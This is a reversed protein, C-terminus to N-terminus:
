IEKWFYFCWEILSKQGALWSFCHYIVDILLSVFHSKALCLKCMKTLSPMNITQNWRTWSACVAWDQVSIRLLTLFKMGFYFWSSLYATVACVFGSLHGRFMICCLFRQWMVQLFNNALDNLQPPTQTPCSNTRCHSFVLSSLIDISETALFIFLLTKM